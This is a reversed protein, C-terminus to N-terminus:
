KLRTSRSKMAGWQVCSACSAMAVSCLPERSQLSPAEMRVLLSWDVLELSTVVAIPQGFLRSLYSTKEQSPQQGPLTPPAKNGETGRLTEMGELVSITWFVVEEELLVVQLSEVYLANSLETPSRQPPLPPFTLPFLPLPRQILHAHLSSQGTLIYVEHLHNYTCRMYMTQILVPMQLHTLVYVCACMHMACM